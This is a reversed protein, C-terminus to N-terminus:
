AVVDFSTLVYYPDLRYEKGDADRVVAVVKGNLEATGSFMVEAMKNEHVYGLLKKGGAVGGLLDAYDYSMRQEIYAPAADGRGMRARKESLLNIMDKHQFALTKEVHVM